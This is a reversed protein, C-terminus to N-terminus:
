SPSLPTGRGTLGGGTCNDVLVNCQRSLRLPTNKSGAITAVFRTTPNPGLCSHKDARSVRESGVGWAASVFGVGGGSM